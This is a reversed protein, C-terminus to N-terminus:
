GGNNGKRKEQIDETLVPHVYVPSVSAYNGCVAEYDSGAEPDAGTKGGRVFCYVAGDSSKYLDITDNYRRRSPFARVRGFPPEARNPFNVNVFTGAKWFNRMKDLRKVAFSVATEWHWGDEEVLSLALAPIGALAAQRAAAATGSYLIDTGLNAGRNIGSIVLDLTSVSIGPIAELLALAVCDVPTGSCSWTDEEIETLKCPANFFSIAHSVGSRDSDPALAFVRHGAERLAGALLGLGPCAAGDDNTLLIQM